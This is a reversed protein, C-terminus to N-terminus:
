GDKLIEAKLDKPIIGMFMSRLTRLAGALEAGYNGPLGKWGDRHAALESLKNCRPDDRSVEIGAYEVVDGSGRNDRLLRQWM